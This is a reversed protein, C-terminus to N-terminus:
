EIYEFFGISIVNPKKTKVTKTNQLEESCIIPYPYFAAIAFWFSVVSNSANLLEGKRSGEIAKGFISWKSGEDDSFFSESNNFDYEFNM